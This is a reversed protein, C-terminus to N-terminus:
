AKMEQLSEFKCMDINLYTREVIPNLLSDM